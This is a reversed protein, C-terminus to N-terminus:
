ARRFWRRELFAFLCRWFVPGIKQIRLCEYQSSELDSSLELREISGSPARALAEIVRVAPESFDDHPGLWIRVTEANRYIQDMIQVQSNRELLNEQNICVADVM